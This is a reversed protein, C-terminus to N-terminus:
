AFSGGEASVSMIFIQGFMANHNSCQYHYDGVSAKQNATFHPVKWILWGNSKQNASTGTTVTGNPSIYILNNGGNSSTLNTGGTSDSGGTRIAFPHSGNDYQLYFVYTHGAILYLSPDNADTGDANYGSFTYDSTGSVGNVTYLHGGFMMPLTATFAAASSSGTVGMVNIAKNDFSNSGDYLITQGAASSTIDTDSLGSLTGVSADAYAKVAASTPITTDNDNSGIGESETVLTAAAIESTTIALSLKSQAIAAGSKINADEINTISNGTADADITKNTFTTTSSATIYNTLDSTLAVTGTSTPLTLTGTNTITSIVPATLTKNTLTQSGTLTAVTSDVAITVTDTAAATTDIGAGGTLTLTNGNTISQTTGSSGAVSFSAMGSGTALVDTTGFYLSTSNAYLKNTPTGPAGSHLTLTIGEDITTITKNTLAQTATTGVVDGTPAALTAITGLGLTTRQAAADADDLLNRGATTFDFTSATGSGTFFIGKDAASTLGAIATLDADAAQKANLQTQINSAIGDLHAIESATIVSAEIEGTGSSVLARSATTTALKSLAIAATGSVESNTISLAVKSQAIAASNSIDANVLSVSEDRLKIWNGAHSGYFRGTGHVHAFMGHYTSASPLDGESSYPANWLLYDTTGDVQTNNGLLIDGTGDPDIDVNGNSASTITRGNVDLNGGLQPTTDQVVDTLNGGASFSNKFNLFTIKKTETASTDSAILLDNDALTTVANLESIRKDAM